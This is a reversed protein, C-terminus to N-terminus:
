PLWKVIDEIDITDVYAKLNEYLDTKADLDTQEADYAELLRSIGAIKAAMEAYPKEYSTVTRDPFIERADFIGQILGGFERVKEMSITEAHETFGKIHEICTRAAQLKGIVHMKIAQAIAGERNREMLTQEYADYEHQLLSAYMRLPALEVHQLSFRNGTQKMIGWAQERIQKEDLVVAPNFLPLSADELLPAGDRLQRRFAKLCNENARIREHLLMQDQTNYGNKPLMEKKRRHMRSVAATMQSMAASVNTRGAKDTLVSAKELLDRADSKQIGTAHAFATRIRGLILVAQSRFEEKRADDAIRWETDLMNRFAVLEEEFDSLMDLERFYVREEHSTKRHAGYASDFHQVIMQRSPEMVTKEGKRVKKRTDQERTYLITGVTSPDPGLVSYREDVDGIPHEIRLMRRHTRQFPLASEFIFKLREIEAAKKQLRGVPDRVNDSFDCLMLDEALKDPILDPSVLCGRLTMADLEGHKEFVIRRGREATFHTVAYDAPKCFLEQFRKFTSNPFQKWIEAQLKEGELTFDNIETIDGLRVFEQHWADNKGYDEQQKGGLSLLEEIVQKEMLLKQISGRVKKPYDTIEKNEPSFGAKELARDNKEILDEFTPTNVSAM